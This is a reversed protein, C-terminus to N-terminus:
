ASIHKPVCNERMFMCLMAAISTLGGHHSHCHAACVNVPSSYVTSFVNLRASIRTSAPVLPALLIVGGVLVLIEVLIADTRPCTKARSM